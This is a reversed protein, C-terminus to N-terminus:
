VGWLALVGSGEYEINLDSEEDTESCMGIPM